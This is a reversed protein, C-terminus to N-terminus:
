RKRHKAFLPRLQNVGTAIQDLFEKLAAGSLSALKVDSRIQFDGDDDIGAKIYDADLNFKLLERYLEVSERIDAGTAPIAVLVLIADAQAIVVPIDDGGDAKFRVMWTAVGRKEYNLGTEELLQVIRTADQATSESQAAAPGAIAFILILILVAAITTKM